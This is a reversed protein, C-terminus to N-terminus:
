DVLGKAIVSFPGLNDFQSSLFNQVSSKVQSIRDDLKARINM